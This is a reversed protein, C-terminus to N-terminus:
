AVAISMIRDPATRASSKMVPCNGNSWASCANSADVLPSCMLTTIWGHARGVGCSSPVWAITRLSRVVISDWPGIGFSARFRPNSRTRSRHRALVRVADSAGCRRARSRRTSRLRSPYRCLREDRGLLSGHRRDLVYGPGGTHRGGRHRARQPTEAGDRLRGAFPDQGSRLTKAVDGGGRRGAQGAPAGPRDAQHRGCTARHNKATQMSVISASSRVCPYSTSSTMRGGPSRTVGPGPRGAAAPVPWGRPRAAACAPRRWSRGTGAAPPRRPRSAGRGPAGPRRRRCRPARRARGEAHVVHATPRTAM